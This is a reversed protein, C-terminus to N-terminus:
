GFLLSFKKRPIKWGSCFRVFTLLEVVEEKLGRDVMMQLM